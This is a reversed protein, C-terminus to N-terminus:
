NNPFDTNKGLYKINQKSNGCVSQKHFLYVAAISLPYPPNTLRILGFTIASICVPTCNFPFDVQIM